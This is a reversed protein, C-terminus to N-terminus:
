EDGLAAALGGRGRIDLKRYVNGLHWEVSKVTVFLGDAIERNTRGQAALEAVRREAPTLPDGTAAAARGGALRM